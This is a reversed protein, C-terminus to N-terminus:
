CRYETANEGKGRRLWVFFFPFLLFFLSFFLFCPPAPLSPGPRAGFRVTHCVILVDNRTRELEVILPRLREIVDIYSEGGAGPYRYRLKDLKRANAELPHELEIADHSMGELDGGGLENLLGTRLSTLPPQLGALTHSVAASTAGWVELRRM